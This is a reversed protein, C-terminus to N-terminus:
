SDRVEALKWESEVDLIQLRRFKASGMQTNSILRKHLLANSRSQSGESARLGGRVERSAHPGILANGV